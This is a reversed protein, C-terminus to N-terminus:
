SIEFTLIQANLFTVAGEPDVYVIVRVVIYINLHFIGHDLISNSEVILLWMDM